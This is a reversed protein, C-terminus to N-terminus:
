TQSTQSWAEMRVCDCGGGPSASRRAREGPGHYVLAKM